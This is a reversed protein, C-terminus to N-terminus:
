RGGEGLGRAALTIKHEDRLLGDILAGVEDQL